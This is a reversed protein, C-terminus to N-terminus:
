TMDMNRLPIAAPQNERPSFRTNSTNNKKWLSQKMARRYQKGLFCYIIPHLASTLYVLFMSVVFVQNLVKFYKVDVRDAFAEWMSISLLPGWSITFLLVIMVLITVAKRRRKLKRINMRIVTKNGDIRHTTKKQIAAITVCHLCTMLILPIFFFVTGHGIVYSRKFSGKPWAFFCLTKGGIEQTVKLTSVAASDVIAILWMVYIAYRFSDRYVRSQFPFCVVLFKEISITVLILITAVMAANQLFYIFRCMFLGYTWSGVIYMDITQLPIAFVTIFLDAISLNLISFTTCSKNLKRSKVIIYCVTSNGVLSVAFTLFYMIVIAIREADNFQCKVFFCASTSYVTHNTLNSALQSTSM